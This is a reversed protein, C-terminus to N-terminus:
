SPKTPATLPRRTTGVIVPTGGRIGSLLCYARSLALGAIDWEVINVELPRAPTRPTMCAKARFWEHQLAETATPREEALAHAMAGVLKLALTSGAHDSPDQLASAEQTSRALLQLFHRTGMLHAEATSLSPDDPAKVAPQGADDSLLESFVVGASWMDSEPSYPIAGHDTALKDASRLVEPSAYSYTTAMRKPACTPSAETASGLDTLKVTWMFRSGWPPKFLLVNTPKVDNHNVKCHSLWQLARLLGSMFVRNEDDSFSRYRRMETSLTRDALEMVMVVCGKRFDFYSEHVSVVYKSGHDTLEHSSKSLVEQFFRIESHACEARVNDWTGRVNIPM